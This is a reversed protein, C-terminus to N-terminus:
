IKEAVLSAIAKRRGSERFIGERYFLVRFGRFLRFLENPQLFYRPNAPGEPGLSKQEILYTQFVVRGGKRLGKKMKPILRRDLFYFDIILDFVGPAIPYSALDALATRIRVGRAKALRRARSLAIRSIDVAEVKHGQEALFVANRGEGSAVDLAKGGPLLRLVRKLFPNPGQRPDFTKEQYIRNWRERDGPM